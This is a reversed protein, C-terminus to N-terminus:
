EIGDSNPLLYLTVQECLHAIYFHNIYTYICDHDINNASGLKTLYSEAELENM